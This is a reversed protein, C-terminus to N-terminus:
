VRLYENDLIEEITHNLATNIKDKGVKNIVSEM